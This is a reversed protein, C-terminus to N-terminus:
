TPVAAEAYLTASGDDFTGASTILTLVKAEGVLKPSSFASFSNINEAYKNTASFGSWEGLGSRMATVIGSISGTGGVPASIQVGVTDSIVGPSIGNAINARVSEYGVIVPLLSTGFRLYVTANVTVSVRYLVLSLRAANDPLTWQCQVLGALNITGIARLPVQLPYGYLGPNM